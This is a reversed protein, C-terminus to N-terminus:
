PCPGWFSLMLGVDAGDVQGSGDLDQPCGPCPGWAALLNGFDGGDVVGDDNFDGPCNSGGGCDANADGPTDSPPPDTSTFDFVGINWDDNDACRWVHAPVYAVEDVDIFPGVVTDSYIWDGSDPIDDTEILSVSDLISSWPTSDLVGDDNTDLDDNINGSFGWVLMYTVNDSNELFGTSSTRITFDATGLTLGSGATLHVGDSAILQGGLPVVTEVTGSGTSGDGIVLLTVFDLSDGATGRVEVYEEVDIGPHDLRIEALQVDPASGSVPQCQNIAMAACQADWDTGGCYPDANTVLICCAEDDCGASGNSGYCDGSKPDGCDAPGSGCEPNPLGPSDAGLSIDFNSISWEGKGCAYIHGPTYDGDPGVVTAGLYTCNADADGTTAVATIAADWPADDLVCDNNSDLDQGVAGTFNWALFVTMNGSDIIDLQLAYDPSGLTMGPNGIVFYGSGPMTQNYLNFQASVVGNPECGDTGVVVISLGDLSAGPDGILEFYEDTDAGAQKTRFESIGVEPADGNVLFNNAISVCNEDW